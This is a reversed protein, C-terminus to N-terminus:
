RVAIRWIRCSDHCKAGVIQRGSTTGVQGCEWSCPRCSVRVVVRESAFIIQAVLPHSRNAVLSAGRVMQCLMVVEIVNAGGISEREIRVNGADGEVRVVTPSAEIREQQLQLVVEALGEAQVGLVAPTMAEVGARVGICAAEVLPVQRSAKRSGVVIDTMCKLDVSDPRRSDESAAVAPRLLDDAAPADRSDQVGVGTERPSRLIIVIFNGVSKVRHETESLER